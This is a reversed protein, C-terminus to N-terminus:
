PRAGRRPGARWALFLLRAAACWAAKAAFVANVVASGATATAVVSILQSLPGFVREPSPSIWPVNVLIEQWEGRGGGLTGTHVVWVTPATTGLGALTLEERALFLVVVVMLM